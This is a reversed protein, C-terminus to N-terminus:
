KKLSEIYTMIKLIDDQSVRGGFSQMAGSAGGYIAEFTGVDTKVRPYTYTNDVLNSIPLACTQVGTM